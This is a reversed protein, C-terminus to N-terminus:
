VSEQKEDSESTKQDLATKAIRAADLAEYYALSKKELEENFVDPKVPEKLRKKMDVAVLFYTGRFNKAEVEKM